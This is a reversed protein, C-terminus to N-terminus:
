SLPTLTLTSLSLTLHLLDKNNLLRLLRHLTQRLFLPRTRNRTLASVVPKKVLILHELPSRPHLMVLLLDKPCTAQPCQMSQHAKLLIDRRLTPTSRHLIPIAINNLLFLSAM